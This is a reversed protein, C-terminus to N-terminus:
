QFELTLGDECFDFEQPESEAGGEFVAKFIQSCSEGNTSEDWVLTVTAGAKIGAGINFFGFEEGDESVLIKKIAKNTNNHVEFKHEAFASTAGVLLVAALALTRVVSPYRTNM